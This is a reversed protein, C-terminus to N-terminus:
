VIVETINFSLPNVKPPIFRENLENEGYGEKGIVVGLKTLEAIINYIVNDSIDLKKAIDKRSKTCFVLQSREDKDLSKYQHHKKILEAYVDKQRSRLSKYPEIFDLIDLIDRFYNKTTIPITLPNIKDQQEM